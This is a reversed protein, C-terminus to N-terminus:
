RLQAARTRLLAVAPATPTMPDGVIRGSGLELAAIAAGRQEAVLVDGDLPRASDLAALARLARADKPRATRITVARPDSGDRAAFENVITWASPPLM